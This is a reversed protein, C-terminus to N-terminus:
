NVCNKVTNPKPLCCEKTYEKDTKCTSESTNFTLKYNVGAVVQTEVETLEVVTYYHELHKTQNSIVMHALKLYKPDSSVNQKTWGGLLQRRTATGNGGLLNTSVYLFGFLVIGARLLFYM